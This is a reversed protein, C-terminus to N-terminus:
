TGEGRARDLDIDIEEVQAALEESRKVHMEMAAVLAARQAELSVILAQTQPDIDSDGM